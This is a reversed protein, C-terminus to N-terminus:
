TNGSYTSLKKTQILGSNTQELHNVVLTRDDWFNRLFELVTNAQQSLLKQLPLERWNQLKSLQNAQELEHIKGIIAKVTSWNTVQLRQRVLDDVWPPADEALFVQKFARRFGSAEPDICMRTFLREMSARESKLWLRLVDWNKAFEEDTRVNFERRPRKDRTPGLITSGRRRKKRSREKNLATDTQQSPNPIPRSNQQLVAHRTSRVLESPNFPPLPRQEASAQSAGQLPQTPVLRPTPLTPLEPLPSSSRIALSQRQESRMTPPTEPEDLYSSLTSSLPPSSPRNVSDSQNTNYPMTITKILCPRNADALRCIYQYLRRPVACNIEIIIIIIIIIEVGLQNQQVSKGSNLMIM